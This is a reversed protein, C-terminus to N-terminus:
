EKLLGGKFAAIDRPHSGSINGNVPNNFVRNMQEVVTCYEAPTLTGPM